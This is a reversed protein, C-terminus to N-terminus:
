LFCVVHMCVCIFQMLLARMSCIMDCCLKLLQAKLKARSLALKAELSALPRAVERGSSLSDMTVVKARSSKDVEQAVPESGSSGSARIEVAVPESGSVESARIEGAVPESGSSGSAQTGVQLPESDAAEVHGVDDRRLGAYCFLQSDQMDSVTMPTIRSEPRPETGSAITETPVVESGSAVTETPVVESGSAVTETPVLDSGSAVTETPVLDSGSAVTDAPVVQPGSEVTVLHQEHEEEVLIDDESSERRIISDGAKLTCQECICVFM